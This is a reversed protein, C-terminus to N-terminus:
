FLKILPCLSAHSGSLFSYCFNWASITISTPSVSHAVSSFYMFTLINLFNLPIKLNWDEAHPKHCGWRGVHDWPIFAPIKPSTPPNSRASKPYWPLIETSRDPLYHSAQSEPAWSDNHSLTSLKLINPGYITNSTMDHIPNCLCLTWRSSAHASACQAVKANPNTSPLQFPLNGLPPSSRSPLPHGAPLPIM